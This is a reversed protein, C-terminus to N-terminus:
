QWLHLDAIQGSRAPFWLRVVFSSLAVVGVAGALHAGTLPRSPRPRPCPRVRRWLVFATSYLLLVLAFWLSGSDMLNDLHPLRAAAVREESTRM